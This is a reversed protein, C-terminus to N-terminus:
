HEGPRISLRAHPVASRSDQESPWVNRAVPQQEGLLTGFYRATEALPKTRADHANVDLVLEFNRAIESLEDFAAWTREGLPTIRQQELLDLYEHIRRRGQADGEDDAELTRQELSGLRQITLVYLDILAHGLRAASALVQARLERDRFRERESGSVAEPWLAARLQARDPHRLETFFTVWELADTVDPADSAVSSRISTEFREHWILRAQAGLDDQREKLLELAAAQAAEMRDARQLRKARGIYRRARRAMELRLQAPSLQLMHALSDAVTGPEAGLLDMVYNDEFFTSYATGKQIFRRQINAGSVVGTPGKGRFFWAFFTDTGGRDDVEDEASQEGSVRAQPSSVAQRKERRYRAVMEDFQSRVSEPLRERLLLTLWADYQQDLKRKLEDVSKVRRVFILAKKGTTWATKLSDVLADMKPHPLEKQFVDRYDRAMRNVDRVDIGERTALRLMDDRVDEVQEADDFNGVGDDDSRKLRTTELFSEFSALMGIQFSMNFKESGLLEAVKKQVLAVVMRQRDDKVQIPQDHEHVGGRRWERRYQNKTLEDDAVRM